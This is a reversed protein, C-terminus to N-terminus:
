YINQGYFNKVIHRRNDKMHVSIEIDEADKSSSAETKILIEPSLQFGQQIIINKYNNVWIYILNKMLLGGESDKLWYIYPKRIGKKNFDGM